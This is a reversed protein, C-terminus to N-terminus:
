RPACNNPREVASNGQDAAFRAGYQDGPGPQLDLRGLDSGPTTNRNPNQEPVFPASENSGVFVWEGNGNMVCGANHAAAPAAVIVGMAAAIISFSILRRM